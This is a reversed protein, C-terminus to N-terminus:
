EYFFNYALALPVFQLAIGGVLVIMKRVWAQAHHALWITVVAIVGTSVIIFLSGPRIEEETMTGSGFAWFAAALPGLVLSTLAFTSWMAFLAIKKLVTKVSRPRVSVVVHDYDFNMSIPRQGTGTMVGM